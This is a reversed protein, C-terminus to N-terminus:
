VLGMLSKTHTIHKDVEIENCDKAIIVRIAEWRGKADKTKPLLVNDSSMQALIAVKDNNDLGKHHRDLWSEMGDLNARSTNFYGCFILANKSMAM